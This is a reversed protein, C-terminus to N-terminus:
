AFGTMDTFLGKNETSEAFDLLLQYRERGATLQGNWYDLGPQDYTRGLVNLYLTEIYKENTLNEGYRDKFEDSYMFSEAIM